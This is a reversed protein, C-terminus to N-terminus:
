RIIVADLSGKTRDRMNETVFVLKLTHTGPSLQGSYDWREQYTQKWSRENISGVLTGDVYVDMTRFERGTTYLISFSQGSINLSVYSGNKTTQKYSGGYAARKYESQWDSSYSFAGDLDDYTKGLVPLTPTPSPPETATATITPPETTSTLTAPVPTGTPIETFTATPPVPTETAIPETSIDTPLAIPTETVTTPTAQVEPTNTPTATPQASPAQTIEIRDLLTSIERGRIILTHEGPPLYFVKPTSTNEEPATGERWTVVREEFGDTVIIDWIMSTDPEGDMGVFFSNRGMDAASVIAKVLYNGEDQITFRYLARGGDAPNSTLINQSVIGNIAIFPATIEGQEAEWSLGQLSSPVTPPPLTSTVTPSIPSATNTPVSTPVQTATSSLTPQVTATTPLTATFTPAQPINVKTLEVKDLLTNGERGRIILEHEGPTLYFVKQTTANGDPAAGERWSVVREEFGNTLVVDWTMSIDPEGDMGVFFSNSGADPANVTAKVIYEGTDQISFQYRARGGDLPNTTLSGQSVIGDTVIFPAIIEGQEAEWTLGPLPSPNEPLPSATETVTPLTPSATYTPVQTSTPSLTPQFTATPLVTATFTPTQPIDVKTLEVKDLLTNGERGRIILMHEGPTLYFVKQTSTSGDPATGERWSVIREEFGNTPIVDWTMSTDPEGDMGVFFSNSSADPANVIAKVIYEGTDQISFQYRARGGDSPNTTLNEQSVVGTTVVFPATIEGQEAEWSLGPLPSPFNVSTPSATNTPVSTNTPSATNTPLTTNTPSPVETVSTNSVYEFAGIDPHDGRQNGDFDYTVLGPVGADILPSSPLLHFDYNTINVMDYPPNKVNNEQFLISGVNRVFDGTYGISVNNAIHTTPMGELWVPNQGAGTINYFTNNYIKVGTVSSDGYLAIPVYGSDKAIFVNNRFTINLIPVSNDNHTLIFFQNSGHLRDLVCINGEIILNEVRDYYSQAWAWTMFCDVHQDYEPWDRDDYIDHIYNGRITNNRGWLWMGDEATDYIENNVILNNDGYVRISTKQDPDTISFGRLINNDGYIIVMSIIAKGSAQLTVGSREFKYWGEGRYDGSYVTINTCSTNTLAAKISGGEYVECIGGQLFKNASQNLASASSVGFGKVSQIGSLSSTIILAIVLSLLCGKEWRFLSKTKM